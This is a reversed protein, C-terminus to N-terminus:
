ETAVGLQRKLWRVQTLMLNEAVEEAQPTMHTAGVLPLFTHDRGAALLEGSLRLAHAVFVNDDALGHVILLPRRLSPADDAAYGEADAGHCLACYRAYLAEGQRVIEDGSPGEVSPRASEEEGCAAALLCVTWLLARRRM